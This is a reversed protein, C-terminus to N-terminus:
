QVKEIKYIAVDFHIQSICYGFMEDCGDKDVDCLITEVKGRIISKLSAHNVFGCFPCKIPVDRNEFQCM